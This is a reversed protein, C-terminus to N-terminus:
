KYLRGRVLREGEAGKDVSGLAIRGVAKGPRVDKLMVRVDGLLRTREAGGMTGSKARSAVGSGPLPASAAEEEDVFRIHKNKRALSSAFGFIDPGITHHDLYAGVVGGVLLLVTSFLLLAFWGWNM